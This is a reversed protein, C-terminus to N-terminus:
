YLVHAGPGDTETLAGDALELFRDAMGLLTPHNSVLVITMSGKLRELLWLFLAETEKDMATSPKDLLLIRPRVVLARALTIRQVLGSPLFVNAQNDVPTEYGQPLEAVLDDLGLLAASDLAAAQKRDDFLTLNDLITGKFLTGFQPVYAIRGTMDAHDWESIRYDDIFAEGEVPHLKGMMLNLLSTGGSSSEGMIAAMEGPAIALNINKFVWPAEEQFRFSLDRLTIAGSIEEPFPPAGPPILPSLADIEKLRDVAIDANSFRLWFGAINQIPQMARGGLMVCATLGGMTLEGKLVMAGGVGITGFLTMQSFLGGMFGPMSTWWGVRWNDEATQAQLREYRRLMQEELTLTKVMHIGSFLEILFNFRRDTTATQDRRAREFGRRFYHASLLFLIIVTIPVAAVVGGLYYMAVLFLLAFPLDLLVQFVQGGYFGRLSGIAALRDLHVGLGDREFEELRSGLLREVAEMSVLHEFRAAMWAGIFARALRFLAEILLATVCGIVLWALTDTAQNPIIRDYVQMLTVPVALSLLNIFFSSAFLDRANERFQPLTALGKLWGSGKRLQEFIM